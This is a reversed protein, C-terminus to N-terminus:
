RPKVARRLVPVREPGLIRRISAVQVRVTAHAVGLSAAIEKYSLGRRLLRYVQRQQATLAFASDDARAPKLLRGWLALALEQDRAREEGSACAVVIRLNGALGCIVPFAVAAVPLSQFHAAAKPPFVAGSPTQRSIEELAAGDLAVGALHTGNYHLIDGELTEVWAPYSLTLLVEVLEPSCLARRGCGLDDERWTSAACPAATTGGWVDRNPSQKM